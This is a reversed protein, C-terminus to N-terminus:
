RRSRRAPPAETPRSPGTTSVSPLSDMTRWVPFIAPCLTTALYIGGLTLLGATLGAAETLLGTGLVAFPIVAMVGAQTVSQVRSRLEEPVLEFLLPGLIPNLVGAATGGVAMVLALPAFEPVLVALFFRPAGDILFAATYVPWRRFRGALHGYVLSGLVAGGGFIGALLGMSVSGGLNTDAHLPLLVSTWGHNLGNTVTVMLVIALLLRTRRLFRFGEGLESRYTRLSVRPADKVPAAQPLGRLGVAILAASALFSAADVGLAVTPGFAAILVGALPAGLLRALQRCSEFYGAVKALDRGALDALHPMLVGRAVEGPSRGLGVVAVLVCLMWYQLVGAAHLVPVLGTALAGTLDTLFAVRRRGLRDIFPGGLVSAVVLALGEFFAVLGMRAASGTTELVFLPVAILSLSSGTVSIVNATLVAALPRRDTM